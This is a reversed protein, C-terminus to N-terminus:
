PGFDAPCMQIIAAACRSMSGAEDGTNQHAVATDLVRVLTQAKVKLRDFDQSENLHGRWLTASLWDGATALKNAYSAKRWDGVTSKHLTGGEYWKVSVATPPPLARMRARVADNRSAPWSENTAQVSVPPSSRSRIMSGIMFLVVSVGVSIVLASFCGLASTGNTQSTGRSYQSSANVLASFILLDGFDYSHRSM